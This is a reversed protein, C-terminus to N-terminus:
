TKVSVCYNLKFGVPTIWEPFTCLFVDKIHDIPIFNSVFTHRELILWWPAEVTTTATHITCFLQCVEWPIIIEPSM